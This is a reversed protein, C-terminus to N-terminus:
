RDVSNVQTAKELDVVVDVLWVWIPRPLWKPKPRFHLRMTEMRKLLERKYVKRIKKITKRSTEM